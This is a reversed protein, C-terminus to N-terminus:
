RKLAVFLEMGDVGAVSRATFGADALLRLWTARPFLGQVHVEHVVRVPAGRERLVYVMVSQVTTGAPDAEWDWELYRLGRGDGDHGGHNTVPQFTERVFDPAFLAAGGQRCHVYATEIAERLADETTMYVVADHVFVGDFERGLRLSRMDGVIHALEPNIRRSLALMEASRDTLTLAFHAKMHSANNGGGAGLELVTGGRPVGAELLLDRYLTAEEEYDAPHTLLHFWDALDSYLRLPQAEESTPTQTM